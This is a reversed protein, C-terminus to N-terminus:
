RVGTSGPRSNRDVIVSGRASCSEPVWIRRNNTDLHYLPNSGPISLSKFPDEMMMFSPHSYELHNNETSIIPFHCPSGLQQHSPLLGFYAQAEEHTNSMLRSPNCNLMNPILTLSNALQLTIILSSLPLRETLINHLKLV